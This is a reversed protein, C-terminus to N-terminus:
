AKSTRLLETLNAFLDLRMANLNVNYQLEDSFRSLYQIFRIHGGRSRNSDKILQIRLNEVVAPLAARNSEDFILMALTKIDATELASLFKKINFDSLSVLNAISGGAATLASRDYEINNERCIEEVEEQSLPNFRVTQCRSLITPLLMDSRHTVLFFITNSGPEELNKLLANASTHKGGSSLLHADDLIIVKWRGCYSTSDVIESIRRIGETTYKKESSDSFIYLDPHMNNEAQRCAPCGCPTWLPLNNECLLHKAIWVAFLKKGIGEVGSFHYAHSLNSLSHEIIKRCNNHGIPIPYNM